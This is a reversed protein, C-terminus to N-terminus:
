INVKNFGSIGVRTLPLCKTIIGTISTIDDERMFFRQGINVYSM